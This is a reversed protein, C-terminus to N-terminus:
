LAPTSTGLVVGEFASVAIFAGAGQMRSVATSLGIVEGFINILPAGPSQDSAISTYILAPLQESASTIDTVIGTAVRARSLGGLSLVTSGLKVNDKAFSMSSLIPVTEGKKPAPTLYAVGTDADIKAVAVSLPTGDPLEATYAWDKQPIIAADTVLTSADLAFAVGAVPTTTGAGSHIRVLRGISKQISGTILDEEKVVTTTEKVLTTTKGNPDPVVTQVTREVVRNITQTVAPPAQALLAVTVIGTAISTVFSVLLVLLIIQTKSLEEIDM